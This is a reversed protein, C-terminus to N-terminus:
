EGGEVILKHLVADRVRARAQQLQMLEHRLGRQPNQSDAAGELILAALQDLTNDLEHAIAGEPDYGRSRLFADLAQDVVFAIACGAGLTFTGTCLGCELLGASVGLRAASATTVRVAIPTAIETAILNVALKGIGAGLDRRLTPLMAQAMRDYRNRFAKDTQPLRLTRGPSFESDALDKRLAVLLESQLGDARAIYGQVASSLVTKLEDPSFIIEQFKAQLFRRHREKDAYPLKSVLFNWKGSLSLVAAAFERTHRKKEEFFAKVAKAQVDIASRTAADTRKLQPVVKTQWVRVRAPDCSPHYSRWAAAAAIATLSALAALCLLIIRKKRNM